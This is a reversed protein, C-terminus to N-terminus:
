PLLLLASTAVPVALRQALTQQYTVLFGCSTTIHTAGRQILRQGAAVFPEVLEDDTIGVIRRVTAAPVREVLVDVGPRPAGIDGPFRTFATDLMLVGLM